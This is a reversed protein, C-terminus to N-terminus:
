AERHDGSRTSSSPMHAPSAFCDLLSCTWAKDWPKCDLFADDTQHNRKIKKAEKRSNLGRTGKNGKPKLDLSKYQADAWTRKGSRRTTEEGPTRFPGRPARTQSPTARSAPRQGKRTEGSDGRGRTVDLHWSCLRVRPPQKGGAVGCNRHNTHLPRSPEAGRRVKATRSRPRHKVPRSM